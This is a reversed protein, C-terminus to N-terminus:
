VQRNGRTLRSVPHDELLEADPECRDQDVGCDDAADQQRRRHLQQALPVPVEM